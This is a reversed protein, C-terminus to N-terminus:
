LNEQAISCDRLDQQSVLMIFKRIHMNDYKKTPFCMPREWQSKDLRKNYYYVRGSSSTHETWIDDEISDHGRKRNPTSSNDHSRVDPDHSSM